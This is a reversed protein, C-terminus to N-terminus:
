DTELNRWGGSQLPVSGSERAKIIVSIAIAGVLAVFGRFLLRMRDSWIKTLSVYNYIKSL